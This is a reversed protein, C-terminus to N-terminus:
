PLMPDRKEDDVNEEEEPPLRGVKKSPADEEELVKIVEPNLIEYIERGRNLCKEFEMKDLPKRVINEDISILEQEMEDKEVIVVPVETMGLLRCAHFRRGGALLVNKNNVTLPHILGVSKISMVLEHVDTNLRLYPNDPIIQDIPMMQM